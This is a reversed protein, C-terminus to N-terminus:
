VGGKAWEKCHRRMTVHHALEVLPGRDRMRYTNGIEEQPKSDWTTLDADTRLRAVLEDVAWKEARSYLTESNDGYGYFVTYRAVIEGKDLGTSVRHITTSLKDIEGNHLAFFFCHNGKYDPLHGGHINIIRGDPIQNLVTSGIKKTGMVIYADSVSRSLEDIVLQDNIWPTVVVRARPHHKIDEWSQQEDSCRFHHRRYADYGFVRRRLQHYASWLYARYAGIHRLRVIQARGPEVVVRVTGFTKLIKAVLYLHHPGDSCLVTIKRM